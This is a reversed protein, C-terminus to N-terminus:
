VWGVAGRTLVVLTGAQPREENIVCSVKCKERHLALINVVDFPPEVLSFPVVIACARVVMTSQPYRHRAVFIRARCPGHDLVQKPMFVTRVRLRADRRYLRLLPKSGALFVEVDGLKEPSRGLVNHADLDEVPPRQSQVLHVDVGLHRGFQHPIEGPSQASVEARVGRSGFGGLEDDVTECFSAPPSSRREYLM